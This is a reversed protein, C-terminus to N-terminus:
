SREKQQKIQDVVVVFKQLLGHLILVFGAVPAQLLSFVKALLEERTPLTALERIKASEVVKGEVWGGKVVLKKKEKMFDYLVKAGAVPDNGYCLGTSGRLYKELEKYGLKEFILKALTNKVVKYQLKNKRLSERLEHMERVALGTFDTLFITSAERLKNALEEVLAIKKEKTLM